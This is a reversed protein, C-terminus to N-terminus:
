TGKASLPQRNGQGKAQSPLTTALLQQGCSQRDHRLRSARLTAGEKCTIYQESGNPGNTVGCSRPPWLILKGRTPRRPSVMELFVLGAVCAFPVYGGLRLRSRRAEPGWCAAEVCPTQSSLVDPPPPHRPSRSYFTLRPLRVCECFVGDEQEAHPSRRQKPRRQLRRQGNRSAHFRKATSRSPCSSM